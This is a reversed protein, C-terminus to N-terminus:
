PSVPIRTRLKPHQHTALLPVSLSLFPLFLSGSSCLLLSRYPSGVRRVADDPMVFRLLTIETSRNGTHPKQNEDGLSRSHTKLTSPPTRASSPRETQNRDYKALFLKRVSGVWTVDALTEFQNGRSLRSLSHSKTTGAIQNKAITNKNLAQNFIYTRSKHIRRPAVEIRNLKLPM